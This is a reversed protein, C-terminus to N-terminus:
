VNNMRKINLSELIKKRTQKMIKEDEENIHDYGYLHLLGHLALFAVERKKSHGYEKAQQKAKKPCIVIDGLYLFGDPSVEKIFDKIHQNYNIDLMPFSLVDTVRDVKRYQMNLDKIRDKNVFSVTVVSDKFYNKTYEETKLFIKTILRRYKIGVKEFNIKM